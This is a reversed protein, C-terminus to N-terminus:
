EAHEDRRTLIESQTYVLRSRKAVEELIRHTFLREQEVTMTSLDLSLETLIAATIEPWIPDISQRLYEMDMDGQPDRLTFRYIKSVARIEQLRAFAATEVDAYSFSLASPHNHTLVSGAFLDPHKLIESRLDVSTGLSQKVFVGKGDKFVVVTERDTDNRILGEATALDSLLAKRKGPPITQEAKAQRKGPQEVSGDNDQM